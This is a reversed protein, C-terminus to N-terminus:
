SVRKVRTLHEAFSAIDVQGSQLFHLFGVGKCKCTESISLLVLYDWLDKGHPM